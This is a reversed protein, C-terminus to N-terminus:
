KHPNGTSIQDRLALEALYQAYPPPVCQVLHRLPIPPMGLAQAVTKVGPYRFRPGKGGGSPSGHGVACVRLDHHQRWLDSKRLFPMVMIPQWSMEFHRERIIRDLGFMPGALRVTPEIPATPVNEIITCPHRSLLERTAPILNPHQDRFHGATSFAQCPPSAWILDFGTLDCPPRLADGRIFHGPYWEAAARRTDIGVVDFGAAILGRAAGGAGCFLDLATPKRMPEIGKLGRTKDSHPTMM